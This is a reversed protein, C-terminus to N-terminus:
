DEAQRSRRDNADKNRKKRGEEIKKSDEILTAAEREKKALNTDRM